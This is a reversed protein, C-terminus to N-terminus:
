FEFDAASLQSATVGRLTLINGGGLDITVNGAGGDAIKGSLDSFSAIGSATLNLKDIGDEFGWLTDSGNSAVSAYVDAAGDNTGFYIVDNGTGGYIRDAGSGAYITDDGSGGYVTDNGAGGLLQDNGAGGGVVDNGAGGAVTDNGAGGYAKDDGAGGGVFDSGEGGFAVDNGDGGTVTDDGALGFISDDGAAGTLTDDQPTGIILQGVQNTTGGGSGSGGPDGSPPADDAVFTVMGTENDFVFDGSREVSVSITISDETEAVDDGTFPPSDGGVYAAVNGATFFITLLDGAFDVKSIQVCMCYVDTLHISEGDQMAVITDGDLHASEGVILDVGTGGEYRDGGLGGHLTDDGAGGILTDAGISGAYNPGNLFGSAIFDNGQTGTIQVGAADSTDPLNLGKLMGAGFYALEKPDFSGILMGTDFASFDYTGGSQVLAAGINVLSGAEFIATAGGKLNTVLVLNQAKFDGEDPGDSLPAFTALQDGGVPSTDNGAGVPGEGDVHHPISSADFVVLDSGLGGYVTDGETAFIVDNGSGGDIFDKDEVTLMADKLVSPKVLAKLYDLYSLPLGLILDDGDGGDITDSGVGGGLVDDGGNGKINDNETGGVYLNSRGNGNYDAM